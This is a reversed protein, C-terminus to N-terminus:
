ILKIYFLQSKYIEISSIKFLITAVKKVFTNFNFFEIRNLYYTERQRLLTELRRRARFSRTSYIILQRLRYTKNILYSTM